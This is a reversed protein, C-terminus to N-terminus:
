QFVAMGNRNCIEKNKEGPEEAQGQQPVSITFTTERGQESAVSVDGGHARVIRRVISLGLGTGRVVNKRGRQEVRYFRDFIFPLHQAPIGVGDDRVAVMVRGPARRASVVVHVSRDSNQKLANEVLNFLIQTWYFPDGTMLFPTEMDLGIAAGSRACCSELRLAVDAAAERLDFLRIQLVSSEPTELRSITLMDEVIRVIRQTHKMMMLLIRERGEASGALEPEDLLNELYGLIITLPTRLEHSANAVFDRRMALTRREVTMDHFVLGVHNESNNLPTAFIRYSRKEGPHDAPPLDVDYTGPERANLAPALADALPTNELVRLLNLSVLSGIGLLRRAPANAMVLRGSPRALVFPVGLAELFLKKDEELRRATEHGTRRLMELELQAYKYRRRLNVIRSRLFVFPVLVGTLVLGTTIGWSVM